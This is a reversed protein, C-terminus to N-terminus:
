EEGMAKKVEDDTAGGEKLGQQFRQMAAASQGAAVTKARQLADISSGGAMERTTDKCAALGLILLVVVPVVLALPRVALARLQLALNLSSPM